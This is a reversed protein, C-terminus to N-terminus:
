IIAGCGVCHAAAHLGARCRPTLRATRRLGTCRAASTQTAREAPEGRTPRSDGPERRPSLDSAPQAPEHPAIMKEFFMLRFIAPAFSEARLRFEM